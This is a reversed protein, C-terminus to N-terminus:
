GRLMDELYHRVEVLSEYVRHARQRVDDSPQKLDPVMCVSIGAAHAATVGAESDELAVCQSPQMHITSAALLYIDPAPKGHQVQDGTTITAFRHALNCQELRPIAYARRTSTAVAKPIKRAELMDLLEGLGKKLPPAEAFCIEHHHRSRDIFRDFVADDKWRERLIKHTDATNRGLLAEHLSPPFEIECDAAARNFVDRYTRETDLMLGDMDFIVAQFKMPANM